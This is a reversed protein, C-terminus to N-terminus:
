ECLILSLFLMGMMWIEANEIIAIAEMYGIDERKMKGNILIKAYPCMWVTSKNEYVAAIEDSWNKM